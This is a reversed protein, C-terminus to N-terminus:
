PAVCATAGTMFMGAQMAETVSLDARLEATRADDDQLSAVVFARAETSLEEDAKRAMCECTARDWNVAGLCAEVFEDDSPAGSSCGAFPVALALAFTLTVSRLSM